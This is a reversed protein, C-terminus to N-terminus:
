YSGNSIAVKEKAATTVPVPMQAIVVTKSADAIESPSKAASVSLSVNSRASPSPKDITTAQNTAKDAPSSLNITIPLGDVAVVATSNNSRQPALGNNLSAATSDAAGISVPVGLQHHIAQEVKAWDVKFNKDKVAERIADDASIMNLHSIPDDINVPVHAEMYLKGDNWGLKYPYHIIRVKQGIKVANFLEEIDASQLRICGSSVLKGVSWPQNTGHILYGAKAMYIAYDGLPNDPGPGIYEPLEKGTQEFVFDRISDPVFWTPHQKKNVISSDVIPTRWERRGLGVPYTYVYKKDSTFYYLRLEALNIVIGDRFPPLIFATPIVIRQGSRIHQPDVDPNAEMIEHWGLHYDNAIKLLTDGSQAEVTFLQGVLDSGQPPMPYTTALSGTSWALLLASLCGINFIWKLM